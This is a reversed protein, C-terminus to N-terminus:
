SCHTHLEEHSTMPSMAARRPMGHCWGLESHNTMWQNSTQVAFGVGQLNHVVNKKNINNHNPTTFPPINHHRSVGHFSFLYNQSAMVGM